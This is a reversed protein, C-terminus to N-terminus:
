QEEIITATRPQISARRPRAANIPMVVPTQDLSQNEEGTISTSHGGSDDHISVRQTFPDIHHDIPASTPKTTTSPIQANTGKAACMGM